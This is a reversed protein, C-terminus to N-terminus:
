SQEKFRGSLSKGPPGTFVGCEWLLPIPEFGPQPVLAAHGLFFSRVQWLPRGQGSEGLSCQWGLGERDGVGQTISVSVQLGSNRGEPLVIVGAAGLVTM